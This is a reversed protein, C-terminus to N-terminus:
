EKIIQIADATALNVFWTNNSHNVELEVWTPSSPVERIARGSLTVEGNRVIAITNGLVEEARM